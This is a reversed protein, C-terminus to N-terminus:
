SNISGSRCAAVAQWSDWVSGSTIFVALAAYTLSEAQSIVYTLSEAQSIVYTLSEAQSIVYTLSEAQSRNNM